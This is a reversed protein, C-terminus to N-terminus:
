SAAAKWETQDRVMANLRVILVRMCATIAVKAPKGRARLQEYRAKFGAHTRIVSHCAMYLVRRLPARGGGISRVGTHQGSDRNYPALGVLAAIRRRDLQGLEPLYAMLSATTVPGIGPVAELRAALKADLQNRLQVIAKALANIQGVLSTIHTTLSHRVLATTAQPLRRREDDRQAILQERRHVAERLQERRPDPPAVPDNVVQAMRALLAADIPDTKARKGLALGFGKARRPDVRTVPIGAQSLAAVVPREYGGTAELLVNVVTRGALRQCLQRYGEITNPLCLALQDPLVHVALTQKAVDVGVYTNM